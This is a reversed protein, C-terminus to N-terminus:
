GMDRAISERNSLPKIEFRTDRESQATSNTSGLFDPVTARAAASSSQNNSGNRELILPTGDIDGWTVLPSATSGPVILPTMPVTRYAKIGDGASSASDESYM